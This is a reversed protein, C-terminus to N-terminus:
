KITPKAQPHRLATHLDAWLAAIRAHATGHTRFLEPLSELAALAYARGIRAEELSCRLAYRHRERLLQSAATHPAAAAAAAREAHLGRTLRSCLERYAGLADLALLVKGGPGDETFDMEEPPSESLETVLDAAAKMAEKVHSWRPGDAISPTSLANLGNGLERIDAREAECRSEVREFIQYIRDIGLLALRLQEQDTTFAAQMDETSMERPSDEQTGALVFEDHKPKDLRSTTECLFSRLDADHALVPHRAVLTLWRQLAARRRQLFRPSGGGVVVRKPPLRCVSNHNQFLGSEILHRKSIYFAGTEILDGGWDQRRPRAFVDFNIPSFTSGLQKWRLKYSHASFVCDYPIPYNINKVADKLRIPSLFPSTAQLLVLVTVDLRKGIFEAAGWISPACDVATIPSRHFIAAGNRLAELAILPHDTSVTVDDLGASKATAIARSLLTLGGVRQLNKLRVGKSGGRALILVATRGSVQTFCLFFLCLVFVFVRMCM